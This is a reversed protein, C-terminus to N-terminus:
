GFAELNEQVVETTDPDILIGHEQGALSVFLKHDSAYFVTCNSEYYTNMVLEAKLKKSNQPFGNSASDGSSDSQLFAFVALGTM